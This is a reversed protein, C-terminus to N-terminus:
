GVFFPLYVLKTRDYIIPSLLATLSQATWPLMTGLGVFLAINKPETYKPILSLNAGVLSYGSIGLLTRGAITLGYWWDGVSEIAFTIICQGAM